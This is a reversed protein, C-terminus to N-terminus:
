RGRELSQGHIDFKDVRAAFEHETAHEIRMLLPEAPPERVETVDHRTLDGHSVSATIDFRDHTFRQGSRVEDDGSAAKAGGRVVNRAIENSSQKPFFKMFVGGNNPVDFLIKKRSLAGHWKPCAHLRLNGFPRDHQWIRVAGRWAQRNFNRIFQFQLRLIASHMGQFGRSEM